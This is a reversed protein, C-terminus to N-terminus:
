KSPSPKQPTSTAPVSGGSTRGRRRLALAVGAIIAVAIIGIIAYFLSPDLGFITSTNSPTSHASTVTVSVSTTHSLTGSSGTVTITYTNASSSSLTLTV